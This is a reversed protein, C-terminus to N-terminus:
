TSCYILRNVIVDLKAADLQANDYDTKYYGSQGRKLAVIRSGPENCEMVAYCVEPLKSFNPNYTHTM